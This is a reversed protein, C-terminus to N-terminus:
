NSLVSSVISCMICMICTDQNGVHPELIFHYKYLCYSWSLQRGKIELSSRSMIMIIICQVNMYMIYVAQMKMKAKSIFDKSTGTGMVLVTTGRTTAM